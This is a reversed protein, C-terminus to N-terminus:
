DYLSSKIGGPWITVNHFTVHYLECLSNKVWQKSTSEEVIIQQVHGNTM